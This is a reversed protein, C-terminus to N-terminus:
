VEGENPKVECKMCEEKNIGSNKGRAFGTDYIDKAIKLMEDAKDGCIREIDSEWDHLLSRSM